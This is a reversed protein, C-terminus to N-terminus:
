AASPTGLEVLEDLPLASRRREEAAAAAREREVFAVLSDPTFPPVPCV